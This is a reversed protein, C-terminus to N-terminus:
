TSTYSAVVTRFAETIENM